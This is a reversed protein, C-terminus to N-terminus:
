NEWKSLRREVEGMIYSPLSDAKRENVQNSSEVTNQMIAPFHKHLSYTNYLSIQLVIGQFLWM